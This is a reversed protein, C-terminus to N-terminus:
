GSALRVVVTRGIFDHISRRKPNFLSTLADAFVWLNPLRQIFLYAVVLSAHVSETGSLIIALEVGVFLVNILIQPFERWLSQRLTIGDETTSDVVRVKMARKGITQGGRAHMLVFYTNSAVVMALSLIWGVWTLTSLNLVLLAVLFPLVVIIDIFGACFRLWLTQYRTENM